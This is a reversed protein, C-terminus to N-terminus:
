RSGMIAFQGGGISQALQQLKSLRHFNYNCASRTENSSMQDLPKGRIAVVINNDDIIQMPSADLM